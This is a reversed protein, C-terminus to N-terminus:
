RNSLPIDFVSPSVVIPIHIRVLKLPKRHLTGHHFSINGKFGRKHLATGVVTFCGLAWKSTVYSFIGGFNKMQQFSFLTQSFSSGHSGVSDVITADNLGQTAGIAMGASSVAASAVRQSGQQTAEAIVRGSYRLGLVNDLQEPVTIFAFEGARAIMKPMLLLLDRPSPSLYSTLNSATVKLQDFGSQASETMASSIGTSSYTPDM